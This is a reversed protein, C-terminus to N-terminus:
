VPQSRPKTSPARRRSPPPSSGHIQVCRPVTQDLAQFRERAPGTRSAQACRFRLCDFFFAKIPLEGRLEEVKLGAASAVCRSRSRVRTPGSADFTIAEGDFVLAPVSFHTGLSSTGAFAGTSM